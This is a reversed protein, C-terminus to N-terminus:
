RGRIAEYIKRDKLVDANHVNIVGIKQRNISMNYWGTHHGDIFIVRVIFCFLSRAPM